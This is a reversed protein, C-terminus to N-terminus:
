ALIAKTTRTANPNDSFNHNQQQIKTLSVQFVNKFATLLALKAKPVSIEQQSVEALSTVGTGTLGCPNIWSFPTLDMNINLALGHYSVWRKVRIGVSGLKKKQCWVGKGKISRYANVNFQGATQLMVEELLNVYSPVSLSLEQLSLIPYAVIQGPGHYTIDGGRNTQLLEVNRAELFRKNVKLNATNSHNGLTFIPEHEVLILVNEIHRAIKDVLIQEQLELVSQYGSQQLDLLLWNTHMMM